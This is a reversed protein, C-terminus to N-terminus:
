PPNSFADVGELFKEIEELLEPSVDDKEDGEEPNGCTYRPARYPYPLPPLYFDFLAV